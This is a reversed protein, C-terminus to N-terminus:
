KNDKMAKVDKALTKVQTALAEIQKTLASLSDSDSKGSSSSRARTAVTPVGSIKIGVEKWAAHVSQQEDSGAGYLQGAKFYTTDAFEQFETTATSAKLSEYWIHGPAEWANGGIATATLFFAKNPIGSNIHVGGWDNDEDDTLHVFKSMRDPQPDKGFLENDYASGPAKLSRLADAGVTPTFIEAGILWDANDASESRAWQKVLSGFVDSLSENLAGPQNHYVLGATKETVGHALEHAIVDLSASFDTFRIGDGDGFVMEEGDWFANNYGLGFHVYGNLRLGNGDISNRDFVDKYFQRTTGFGDFAQNVSDDSSATGQESRRLVASGLFRNGNCDFITRRGDGQSAASPGQIGRVSREGRLRTTTLLTSLAADRTAKDNSELLKRLLHPPVISCVASKAKTKM